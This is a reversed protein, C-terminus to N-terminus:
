TVIVGNVISCGGGKSRGWGDKNRRREIADKVMKDATCEQAGCLMVEHPETAKFLRMTNALVLADNINEETVTGLKYNTGVSLKVDCCHCTPICGGAVFLDHLDSSMCYVVDPLIDAIKMQDTM